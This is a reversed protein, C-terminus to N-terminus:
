CSVQFLNRMIDKYVARLFILIVQTEEQNFIVSQITTGSTLPELGARIIMIILSKSLATSYKNILNILLVFSYPLVLLKSSHILIKLYILLSLHHVLYILIFKLLFQHVDKPDFGNCVDMNPHMIKTAASAFSM